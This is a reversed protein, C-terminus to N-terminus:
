KYKKIFNIIKQSMAESTVVEDNVIRHMHTTSCGVGRAVMAISLRKKQMTERLPYQKEKSYRM